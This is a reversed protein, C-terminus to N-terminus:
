RLNVITQMIQDQTKISQANAQYNRQATVMDVLEATLDVNSGELAGAQLAGMNGASPVGVVPDGSAATRQWVNGGVPALGQPNRFNALEVQGAAKYQGNSYNAKVVGTDDISVGVLQGPAYGDQVLSTVGFSSGNETSNSMDFKVGPIALTSSGSASTGAPIDITLPQTTDVPNGGIAIPNGGTAAYTITTLPATPNGNADAAEVDFPTGNATAFVNWTTSGDAADDQKQFYLTVAVPQGKADYVTMSTANNYSTPDDLTISGPAATSATTKGRSDLNFEMAISSTTKPAIGATPLQLPQSVGPQINGLSDAPYGLLKQGNNNIIYGTSSLKFQGNRTYETPSAGDSVQFFGAGNIALDLSNETTQIDGQTFQQAVTQLTTGIGVTSAGSGNIASAYIDAFEARASKAGYTSANAINNGIVDLNKSSANLGSLGQQFSM